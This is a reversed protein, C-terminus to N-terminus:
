RGRNRRGLLFSALGAGGFALTLLGSPEPVSVLPHGRGYIRDHWTKGFGPDRYEKWPNTGDLAGSNPIVAGVHATFHLGSDIPGSNNIYSGDVKPRYTFTISQGPGLAYPTLYKGSKSDLEMRKGNWTWGEPATWSDAEKVRYPVLDWVLIDFGPYNDQALSSNNTLTWVYTDGDMTWTLSTLGTDVACNWDQSYATGAMILVMALALLGAVVVGRALRQM